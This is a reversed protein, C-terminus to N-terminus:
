QGMLFAHAKKKKLVLCDIHYGIQIHLQNKQVFM